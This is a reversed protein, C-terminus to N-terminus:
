HLFHRVGTFVMAIGHQNAVDITDQDKKSGGPQIIATIGAAAAAEPGDPFPFFADSAMVAGRAAEGAQEVALRVSRVRNMQGAGVGLVQRERTFVIANSKVHRVVRWAFLLEEIEANTPTRETVVKLDAPTIVLHDPTQVLLGGVVRKYDMGTAAARDRWGRLDGVTLLRLDAGWRKRETLIPIAEPEYDPAIIAEFFTNKGTIEEATAVDLTRTVALIGGFASIPDGLRAKLFAEALTEGLAAGCPNTHKIIVAAAQREESFEKVTELAGNLDYFNNFSLEKGHIQKATAVSPETVGTKIYFAAQQHPNEGYRCDQTKRFGLALEDPFVLATDGEAAFRATLWGSVTADYQGTHAYAKAALRRRTALAVQGHNAEMESLVAAYDAPHVVVIVGTHNKAASRIMAPGGIDINEIAEELTVGSRAVTAAFPYLNVCVLDIPQINQDAIAQLHEPKARDALLGGHVAPHLTKVRGELMEPFGTIDSIGTVPIGANALATATGGTSIIEFGLQHLGQAFPILGTKDSVSLLARRPTTTDTM